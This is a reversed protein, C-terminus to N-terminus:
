KLSIIIRLLAPLCTGLMYLMRMWDQKVTPLWIIHLLSMEVKLMLLDVLFRAFNNVFMNHGIYGDDGRWLISDGSYGINNIFICNFISGYLGTWVIHANDESVRKPYKNGFPDNLYFDHITSM